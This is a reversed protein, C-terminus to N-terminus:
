SAPTGTEDTDILTLEPDTTTVAVILTGAASAVLVASASEVPAKALAAANSVASLLAPTLPTVTLSIVGTSVTTIEDGGDM